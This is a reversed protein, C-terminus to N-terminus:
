GQEGGQDLARVKWYYRVGSNMAETTSNLTYNLTWLGSVPRRAIKSIRVEDISGNFYDQTGGNTGIYVSEATTDIPSSLSETQSSEVGDVYAKMTTGDWTATVHNWVNATISLDTFTKATTSDSKSLFFRPNADALRVGYSNDSGWKAVIFDDGSADTPKAWAELTIQETVDYEDRDGYDIYGSVGDFRGGNGFRGECISFNGSITGNNAQIRAVSDFNEVFVTYEDWYQRTYNNIAFRIATINSVNFNSANALVFEYSIGDQQFRSQIESANLARAWIAVEDFHLCKTNSKRSVENRRVRRAKPEHAQLVETKCITGNFTNSNM